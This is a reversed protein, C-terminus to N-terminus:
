RPLNEDDKVKVFKYSTKTDMTRCLSLFGQLKGFDELCDISVKSVILAELLYEIIDEKTVNLFEAYTDLVKAYDQDLWLNVNTALITCNPQRKIFKTTSM